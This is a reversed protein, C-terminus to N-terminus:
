QDTAGQGDAQAKRRSKSIDAREKPTLGGWMGYRQKPPANGEMQFARELCQTAVPCERCVVRAEFYAAKEQERPFWPDPKGSFSTNCAAREVWAEVPVVGGSPGAGWPTTAVLSM